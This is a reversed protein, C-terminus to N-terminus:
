DGNTAVRRLSLTIGLVRDGKFSAMVFRENPIGPGNVIFYTSSNSEQLLANLKEYSIGQTYGDRGLFEPTLPGVELDVADSEGQLYTQTSYSNFSILKVRPNWNYDHVLPIEVISEYGDSDWPSIEFTKTVLTVTFPRFGLKGSIARLKDVVPKLRDALTSM